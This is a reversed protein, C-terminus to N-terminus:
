HDQYLSLPIVYRTAVAEERMHAPCWDPMEKLAAAVADGLGLGPERLLEIDGMRGGLHITFRM